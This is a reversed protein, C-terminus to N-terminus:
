YAARGDHELWSVFVEVVRRIVVPDEVRGFSASDVEEGLVVRDLCTPWARPDSRGLVEGQLWGHFARWDVGAACAAGSVFNTYDKLSRGSLYLGPRDLVNKILEDLPATGPAANAADIMEGLAADDVVFPRLLERLKSPQESVLQRMRPTARLRRITEPREPRGGWMLWAEQQEGRGHGRERRFSEALAAVHLDIVLPSFAVVTDPQIEGFRAEHLAKALATLHGDDLGTLDLHLEPESM